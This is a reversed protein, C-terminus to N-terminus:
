KKRIYTRTDPWRVDSINKKRIEASWIRFSNSLPWKTESYAWDMYLTHLVGPFRSSNNKM